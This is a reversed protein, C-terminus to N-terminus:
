KSHDTTANCPQPAHNSLSVVLFNPQNCRRDGVETRKSVQYADVERMTLGTSGRVM